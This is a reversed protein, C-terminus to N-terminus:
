TEAAGAGMEAPSNLCPASHLELLEAPCTQNQLRTGSRLTPLLGKFQAGAKM